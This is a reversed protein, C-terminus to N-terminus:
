SQAPYREPNAKYLVDKILQELSSKPLLGKAGVGHSILSAQGRDNKGQASVYYVNKTERIKVSFVRRKM